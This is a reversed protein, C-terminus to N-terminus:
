DRFEPVCCWSITMSRHPRSTLPNVVETLTHALLPSSTTVRAAPLMTSRSSATSISYCAHFVIRHELLRDIHENILVSGPLQTLPNAYRAAQMQMETIMGMLDHASGIGFLPRECTVHIWRLHAPTRFSQRHTRCGPHGVDRRHAVPVDMFQVCPKRGYLERHFPRAMRDVM